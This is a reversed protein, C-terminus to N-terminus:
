KDALTIQRFPNYKKGGGEFGSNKYFEVFTLRMPHVFAGLGSMFINLSHGFLLIIIMVLQGVFPIDPSLQVALQNFVFGMVGGSLGLAFLRIYSLMDGILGTAMNFTNWLGVGVNILPNRGPTNLIYIFLASIGLVAYALYRALDPPLMGYALYLGGGGIFLILWGWQELSHAWGYRIVVGCAKIFMGFLIQVGGLILALNFLQDSNLMFKKASELWPWDMDLLPIGFFTGSLFGCFVTATGLVSALTMLPKLSPKVKRRAYLTGLLVLFGYGTDGLCLGFFLMFFPAFFPTLDLEQYRPFDYLAGIPEFLRAFLNNRLKIPIVDEDTIDMKQFYYGAHNLSKEMEVTNVEPIWGELLMLKDDAKHETQIKVHNWASDNEIETKLNQLSSYQNQAIELLDAEITKKQNEDQKIAECLQQYDKSPLRAPDADIALKSGTHTLTIFYVIASLKNIIIANYESEWAEKFHSEQCTFFHVQYGGNRLRDINEYSFDGWESIIDREKEKLTIAAQIKSLQEQLEEIRDLLQECERRPLSNESTVPPLPIEEKALLSALYKLQTDVRKEETKLQQLIPHEQTLKPRNVHVVGLSRLRELFVDYEKHYVLFAYKNMKEVM